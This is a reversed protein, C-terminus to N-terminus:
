SYKSPLVGFHNKFAVTFHQPNKYGVKHSVEAITNSGELLLKHAASMRLTTIYKFLTTTHTKKFDQKLKSVSLGGISALKAIPLPEDLHAKIYKEVLLLQEQSREAIKKKSSDLVGQTLLEILVETVKAELYNKKMTGLYNCSVIDHIHHHLRDTIIPSNQSMLIPQKTKIATELNSLQKPFKAGVTKELYDKTFNIELTRRRPPRFSLVGNVQPFYFLNFHGSPIDIGLSGKSFPRYQNFGEIEFHLKFFPFDHYVEMQYQHAVTIDKHVMYIGDWSIERIEGKVGNKNVSYANEKLQASEFGSSYYKTLMGGEFVPSKLISKMKDKKPM